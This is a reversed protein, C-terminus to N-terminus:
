IPELARSLRAVARSNLGTMARRLSALKLHLEPSIVRTNRADKQSAVRPPPYHSTCMLSSTTNGTPTLSSHTRLPHLLRFYSFSPFRISSFIVSDTYNLLYTHYLLLESLLSVTIHLCVAFTPRLLNTQILYLGLSEWIWLSSLHLRPLIRGTVGSGDMVRDARIRDKRGSGRRSSIYVLCEVTKETNPNRSNKRRTKEHERGTFTECRCFLAATRVGKQRKSHLRKIM